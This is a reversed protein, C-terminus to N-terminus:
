GSRGRFFGGQCVKRADLLPARGPAEPRTGPDLREVLPRYRCGHGERHVCTECSSGGGGRLRDLIELGVGLGLVALGATTAAATAVTGLVLFFLLRRTM